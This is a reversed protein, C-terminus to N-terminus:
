QILPNSSSNEIPTLTYNTINNVEICGDFCDTSIDTSIVDQSNNDWEKLYASNCDCIYITSEDILEISGVYWIVREDVYNHWDDTECQPGTVYDLPNLPTWYINYNSGEACTLQQADFGDDCGFFLLALVIPFLKNM